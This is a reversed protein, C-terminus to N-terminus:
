AAVDSLAEGDGCRSRIDAWDEPPVRAFAEVVAPDFQTGAFRRLEALAAEYPQARRYCRDSTIADFADVVSFIRATIEIEDGRLGAPYGNGDWWEHHQGIVRAAAEPLGARLAMEMGKRPHERMQEWEPGDLRAPKRLVRDDVGIKGIDHLRSGLKLHTMEERGLGMEQGLRLSFHVVRAAHGSTENDKYGLALALAKASDNWRMERIQEESIPAQAPGELARLIAKGMEEVDFPKIVYDRAGARFAEVTVESEGAASMIIVPVHAHRGRVLRVLEIGNMGPMRIDTIILRFGDDSQLRALAEEGSAVVHCDYDAAFMNGFLKRVSPDDDAVLIRPRRAGGDEGHIAKM